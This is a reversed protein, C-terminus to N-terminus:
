VCWGSPTKAISRLAAPSEDVRVQTKYFSELADQQGNGSKDHPKLFTAYIFKVYTFLGGNKNFDAKQKQSSLLHVVAVLGCVLFATGAIYVYLWDMRNAVGGLSSSSLSSM